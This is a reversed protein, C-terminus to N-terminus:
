PCLKCGLNPSVSGHRTRENWRTLPLTAKHGPDAESTLESTLSTLVCGFCVGMLGGWPHTPLYVHGTLTHGAQKHVQFNGGGGGVM